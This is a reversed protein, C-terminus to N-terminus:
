SIREKGREKEERRKLHRCKMVMGYEKANREVKCKEDLKM